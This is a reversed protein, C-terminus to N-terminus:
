EISLKGYLIWSAFGLQIFIYKTSFVKYSM